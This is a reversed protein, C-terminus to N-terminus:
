PVNSQFLHRGFEAESILTVEAAMKALECGQCWRFILTADGTATTGVKNYTL